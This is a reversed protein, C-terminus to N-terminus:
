WLHAKPLIHYDDIKLICCVENNKDYFQLNMKSNHPWTNQRRMSVFPITLDEYFLYSLNIYWRIKYEKGNVIFVRNRNFYRGDDPKTEKVTITPYDLLTDIEEIEM